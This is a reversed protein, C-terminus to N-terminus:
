PQKLAANAKTLSSTKIKAHSRLADPSSRTCNRDAAYIARTRLRLRKPQNNDYRLPADGAIAPLAVLSLLLVAILKKM